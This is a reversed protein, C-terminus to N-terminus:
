STHTHSTQELNLEIGVKGVLNELAKQEQPTLNVSMSTYDGRKADDYLFQQRTWSLKHFTTMILASRIKRFSEQMNGDMEIAYEGGVDVVLDLLLEEKPKQPTQRKGLSKHKKESADVKKELFKGLGVKLEEVYEPKPDFISDPSHGPEEAM